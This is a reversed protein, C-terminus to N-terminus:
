AMGIKALGKDALKSLQTGIVIGIAIVALATLNKQTKESFM